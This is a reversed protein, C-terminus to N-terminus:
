VYAFIKSLSLSDDCSAYFGAKEPNYIAIVQSSLAGPYIWEM